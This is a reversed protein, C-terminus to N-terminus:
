LLGGLGPSLRAMQEGRAEEEMRLAENVAAMIMDQLMEVDDPDVCVPNIALAKMERRGSVTVSVMGGGAQASYEKEDLAEQAKAMQEQLKQAQRMLQQMNGGGPGSFNGFQNRAVDM